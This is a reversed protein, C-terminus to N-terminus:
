EAAQQNIQRLIDKLRSLDELRCPANFRAKIEDTYYRGLVDTAFQVTYSEEGCSWHFVAVADARLLNRRSFVCNHQYRGEEALRAATRVREFENPCLADLWQELADFQSPEAILPSANEWAILREREIRAVEDHARLLLRANSGFRVPVHTDACMGFYDRAVIKWEHWGFFFDEEEFTLAFSRQLYMKRGDPTGLGDFLIGPTIVRKVEEVTLNSLNVRDRADVLPLLAGAVWGANIDMTNLNRKLADRAPLQRAIVDGPTRCSLLEPLSIQPLFFGCRDITRAADKLIYKKEATGLMSLFDVVFGRFAPNDYLNRNIRYPMGEGRPYDSDTKQGPFNWLGYLLEPWVSCLSVFPHKSTILTAAIAGGYTRHYKVREVRFFDAYWHGETIRFRVCRLAQRRDAPKVPEPRIMEPFVAREESSLARNFTDRLSCIQADDIMKHFFYLTNGSRRPTGLTLSREPRGFHKELLERVERAYPATAGECAEVDLRQRPEETWHVVDSFRADLFPTEELPIDHPM